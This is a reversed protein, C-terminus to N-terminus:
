LLDEPREGQQALCSSEEGQLGERRRVIVNHHCSGGLQRQLLPAGYECCVKSVYANCPSTVKLRQVSMKDYLM